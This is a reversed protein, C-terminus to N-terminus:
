EQLRRFNVDRNSFKGRQSVAILSYVPVRYSSMFVVEAFKGRFEFVEEMSSDRPFPNACLASSSNRAARASYEHKRKRKFSFSFRLMFLSFSIASFPFSLSFSLLSRFTRSRASVGSIQLSPM